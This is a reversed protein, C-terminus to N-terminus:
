KSGRKILGKKIRGYYNYNNEYTRCTKSCYLVLDISANKPLDEINIENKCFKCRISM